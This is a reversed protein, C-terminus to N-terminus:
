NEASARRSLDRRQLSVTSCPSGCAGRRGARARAHVRYPAPPSPVGSWHLRPHKTPPSPPPAVILAASRSSSPSALRNGFFSAHVRYRGIKPPRFSASAETGVVRAKFQRLFVWGLLPDFYDVRIRAFGGSASPPTVSATLRVPRPSEISARIKGEVHAVTKTIDRIQLGLRYRATAAEAARLSVFYRGPLLRVRMRDRIQKTEIRKGTDSLLGLTVGARGLVGLRLDVDSRRHVDFRYLDVLDIRAGDLRGRRTDGSRLELGPGTDDPGAPAVHLAYRRPGQEHDSPTVRVSYVGGADPGPTFALYGGCSEDRVPEGADFRTTEPPYLSMGVCSGRAVLNIRYTRGEQMPLAYADDRDTLADVTAHATGHVLSVGPPVAAPEPAFVKLSFPGPASQYLQGVAILYRGGEETNFSTDANGKANTRSCSIERVQSRVRRYIGLTADLEGGARLSVVVEGASERDVRYWVDASLAGCRPTDEDISGGLTTGEPNAPLRALVEAGAPDDNPPRPPAQVALHFTGAASNTRQGVLILYTADKEGEFSFGAKGHDDSVDCVLTKLGTKVVQFAAVVADLDGNADFTVVITRNDLRKLTYWVTAGMSAGCAPDGAGKTAGVTTGDVSVPLTALVTATALNDNPPAEAAATPVTVFLGLTVLLCVVSRVRRCWRAFGNV